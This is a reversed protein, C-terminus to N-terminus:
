FKFNFKAIYRKGNYYRNAPVARDDGFSQIYRQDTLNLADLTISYHENFTWGLSLDLEGYDNTTAPPAGAIYGGALYKSRWNYTLRASFPGKDYYPSINVSWKSNYPLAGGTSLTGHSYTVSDVMGFGTQGFNQQYSLNLGLLKGTGVNAPKTVSFTCLADADCLGMSMLTDLTDGTAKPDLHKENVAITSIYNRINKYFASIAFVSQPAFYWELSADVNTSKYPKLDPNGGSAKPPISVDAVFFTNVEQFAPPRAITESVAGRLLVDDALVYTLNVSPLWEDYSKSTTQRWADPVPLVPTNAGPHISGTETKTHVYRLGFNGSLKDFAFDQQIYAALNKESFTVTGNVYASPIDVLDYRDYSGIEGSRSWQLHRGQGPSFGPIRNGIINVYGDTGVVDALTGQASPGVAAYTHSTEALRNQSFRAGYHLRNFAGDFDNHFDVQLFDVLQRTHHTLLQTPNSGDLGGVTWNQPDRAAAPDDFTVGKDLDFSYGGHFAANMSYQKQNPNASKSLGAKVAMGWQDGRYSGSLDLGKITVDSTRPFSDFYTTAPGSITAGNQCPHSFVTSCVHGSRIVGDKAPGLKDVNGPNASPMPYFSTNWNDYNEDVYMANLGFELRDTPKWQFTAHAGNRERTQRFWAANIVGPVQTYDHAHWPLNAAYDSATGYGTFIELGERDIREKYHSVSVNFGFTSAPNKWSYFLSGIPNTAEDHAQSNNTAGISGAFSNAALDLPKRTHVFVTGGISGSPFRAESTKHVVIKGVLQPPLITFNFGRNPQSGHLWPVEAMLHGNIFTLNLAPDTGNISVLDGQGMKRDLTVGPIQTMAEAVNTNPFKGLDEASVAEVIANSFRKTQLSKALSRRIGSVVVGQLQTADKQQGQAGSDSSQGNATQGVRANEHAPPGSRDHALASGAFLLATIISTTLVTKRYPM